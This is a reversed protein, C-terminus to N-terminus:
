DHTSNSNKSIEECYRISYQNYVISRETNAYGCDFVYHGANRQMREHWWSIWYAHNDSSNVQKHKITGEIPPGGTFLTIRYRKGIELNLM